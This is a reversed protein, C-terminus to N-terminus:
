QLCRGVADPSTDNDENCERFTPAATPNVIRARYTAMPDAGPALALSLQTLAGPFVSSTSTVTGVPTEGGGAGVLFFDVRVGPPLIAAGVNRLSAVLEVPDTCRVDLALTADAADFVGSEQVNQRYNNVWDLTWSPTEHRPIAGYGESAACAGDGPVCVNTVHYSHQNWIARTGVWTRAADRFMRMGRYSREATTNPTWAVGNVVSPRNAADLCGWGSSSPDAGNSPLLIEAHGDGDVDAVVSAETGTFSTTPASFRVAGTPGDFVWLFCEDAYIVEAIGDGEFDFVTSGTESSSLDHNATRWVQELTTGGAALQLMSYFNQQAVGIEPRGDGDFDAITPPGGNGNGTLTFPGAIVTGDRGHVVTVTGGGVVIVDPHGDGDMDAIAPFGNPLSTNRWLETGDPNYVTNGAVLELDGDENVDAFASLSDSTGGAGGHAGTWALTIAGGTTHFVTAGWAIETFGDNDMDALAFGGGWGFANDSAGPIPMDSRRQVAGNGDVLVVYGEGTAAVVDVHGDRDVDGLAVSTAAFGSSGMGPNALTWVTEGTRGDLARLAGRHCETPTNGTCQCCTGVGTSQSVAYGSVFVVNPPDLEDVTGDCNADYLRGVAPTSWVDIRNPNATPASPQGWSWAVVADLMGVEPHYECSTTCSTTGADGLGGDPFTPCAPPLALCRGARPTPSTCARGADSPPVGADASVSGDPGAGAGLAPECYEGVACDHTTRCEVGPVVCAGAFCTESAGCCSTGCVSASACCQGGACEFGDGCSASTACRGWADNPVGGDLDGGDHGSADPRSACTGDICTLGARCDRDTTCRPSPTAGGSCDCGAGLVAATVVLAALAFRFLDSSRM